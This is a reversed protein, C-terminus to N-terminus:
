RLNDSLSDGSSQGGDVLLVSLLQLVCELVLSGESGEVSSVVCLKSQGSLWQLQSWSQGLRQSVSQGFVLVFESGLSLHGSGVVERL